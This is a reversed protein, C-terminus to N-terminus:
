ATPLKKANKYHIHLFDAVSKWFKRLAQKVRELASIAEAKEFVGGKDGAIKRQEERLREAGRRGSYTALVEDAIDDDAIDDDTNLEPYRKKVEDWVSTGKM